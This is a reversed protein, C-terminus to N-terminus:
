SYCFEFYACKKCFPKNIIEPPAPSALIEQMKIFINKFNEEDQATLEISVTEKLKPYNLEATLNKFGHQKLIYIYYKLQQIHAQEIKKSKKIEHIKGKSDVFDICINAIKIRKKNRIYTTEDILRGIQVLENENEFNIYNTFLWLKRQCVFFYNIQTGNFALSKLDGILKSM